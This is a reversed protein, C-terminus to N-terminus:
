RASLDSGNDDDGFEGNFGSFELSGDFEFSGFRINLNNLIFKNSEINIKIFSSLVM